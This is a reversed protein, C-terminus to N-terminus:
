YAHNIGGTTKKLFSAATTLLTGEMKTMDKDASLFCITGIAEGEVIVPAIAIRTVGPYDPDNFANDAKLSRTEMAQEMLACISRGMYTKKSAGHVAVVVDRDTCLAIHGVAEHLSDCYENAFDSLAGIPSYKKLLVEGERTVYIELPDGERIRLVRRVEKPIVVRGLDDIRRVIGTSKM